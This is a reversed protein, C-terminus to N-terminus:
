GDEDPDEYAKADAERGSDWLRTVLGHLVDDDDHAESESVTETGTEQTARKGRVLSWKGTERGRREGM